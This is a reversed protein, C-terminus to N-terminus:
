RHNSGHRQLRHSGITGSLTFLERIGKWDAGLCENIVKEIMKEQDFEKVKAAAQAYAKSCDPKTQDIGKQVGDTDRRKVENM